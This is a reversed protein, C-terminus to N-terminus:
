GPFFGAGTLTGPQWGQDGLCVMPRGDPAQSASKPGPCPTGIDHPGALPYSAVWFGTDIPPWQNPIWHCALSEGGPGRGFTFLQYNDCPGNLHADYSMNPVDTAYHGPQDYYDNPHAGAAPALVVAAGAAGTIAAITWERIM